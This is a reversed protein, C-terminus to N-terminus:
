KRGRFQVILVSKYDYLNLSATNGSSYLKVFFQDATAPTAAISVWGGENAGEMKAVRVFSTSPKHLECSSYGACASLSALATSDARDVVSYVPALSNTTPQNFPNYPVCMVEMSLIRYETFLNQYSAFDPSSTLQSSPQIVSNLVGGATTTLTGINQIQTVETDNAQKTSVIHTPGKYTLATSSINVNRSTKNLKPM